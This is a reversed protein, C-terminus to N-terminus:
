CNCNCNCNTVVVAIQSGNWYIQTGPSYQQTNYYGSYNTNVYSANLFPGYNGLDNSFQSLNTPASSVNALTFNGSGLQTGDSLIISGNGSISSM